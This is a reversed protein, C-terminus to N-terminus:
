SPETTDKGPTRQKEINHVCDMVCERLRDRIRMTQLRLNNLSIGAEDALAQRAKIKEQGRHAYYLTILRRQGAPLKALCQDLCAFEQETAVAEIPILDRPDLKQAAMDEKYIFKAVGYCYPLPEGRYDDLKGQALLKAVRDFTKDALDEPDCCARRIFFGILKRRIEEYRKGAQEPDPSLWALLKKFDDDM